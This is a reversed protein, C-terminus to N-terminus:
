TTNEQRPVFQFYKEELDDFELRERCESCAFLPPILKLLEEMYDNVAILKEVPKDCKSCFYPAMFSTVKGRGGFNTIMNFQKVMSSSCEVFEIKKEVPIAKIANVWERVGCSNIRKVGRLNIVIKEKETNFIKDLHANEDLIGKFSILLSDELDKRTLTLQDTMKIEKENSFIHFSKFRRQFEKMPWKRDVICIVETKRGPEINIVLSSIYNLIKYVGVGSGGPKIRVRADNICKILHQTFKYRDLSGFPDTVSVVLYRKDYACRITASEEEKLVVRKVREVSDYLFNGSEDCPADYVANMILEDIIDSVANLFRDDQSFRGAFEAIKKLCNQKKDSDTIKLELYEAKHSLYKEVGFVDLGYLKDLTLSIEDLNLPLSGGIINFTIRDASMELMFEELPCNCVAITRVWSNKEKADDFLNLQLIPDKLGCIIVDFVKRPLIKSAELYGSAIELDYVNKKLFDKKIDFALDQDNVFLISRKDM